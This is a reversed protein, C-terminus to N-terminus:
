LELVTSRLYVMTSCTSRDLAKMRRYWCYEYNWMCRASHIEIWAVFYTSTFMMSVWHFLEIKREMSGSTTWRYRIYDVNALFSNSTSQEFSYRGLCLNLFFDGSGSKYTCAGLLSLYNTLRGINIGCPINRPLIDRYRVFIERLDWARRGVFTINKSGRFFRVPRM